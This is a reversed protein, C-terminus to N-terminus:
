AAAESMRRTLVDIQERTFLEHTKVLQVLGFRTPAIPGLFRAETALGPHAEPGAFDIRELELISQVWLGARWEPVDGAGALRIALVRNCMRDAHAGPLPPGAPAVGALLRQADILPVLEGRHVFVGRVWEPANPIPRCAVPPLVEIVSEADTALLLEAARWIIALTPM